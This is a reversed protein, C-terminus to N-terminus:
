WGFVAPKRMIKIVQCYVLVVLLDSRRSIFLPSPLITLGSSHFTVPLFHRHREDSIFFYNWLRKTCLGRNLTGVLAGHEGANKQAAFCMNHGKSHLDLNCTVQFLICKRNMVLHLCHSSFGSSVDWKWIGCRRTYLVGWPIYYVGSKQFTSCLFISKEPM